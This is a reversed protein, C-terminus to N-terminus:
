VREVVPWFSPDQRFHLNYMPVTRTALAALDARAELYSSMEQKTRSATLPTTNFVQLLFLQYAESKPLPSLAAQPGHALMMVAHLHHQGTARKNEGGMLPTGRMWIQGEQEYLLIAEDNLVKRTGALRAVTTKGAGSPGTFLYGKGDAVVGCGHFVFATRGEKREVCITNYISSLLVNLFRPQIEADFIARETRFKLWRESLSIESEWLKPVTYFRQGESELRIQPLISQIEAASRGEQLEIELWFDPERDVQFVACWEQIMDALHTDRCHMGITADGMEVTLEFLDAGSDLALSGCYFSSGPRYPEM